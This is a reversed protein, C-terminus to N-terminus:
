RTPPEDRSLRSPSDASSGGATSALCWATLPADRRWVLAVACTTVLLYGGTDLQRDAPMVRGVAWTWALVLVGVGAAFALDHSRHSGVPGHDGSSM